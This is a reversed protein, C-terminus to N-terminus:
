KNLIEEANKLHEICIKNNLKYVDNINKQINEVEKIISTKINYNNILSISTGIILGLTFSLAISTSVSLINYSM